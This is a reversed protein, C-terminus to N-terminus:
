LNILIIILILGLIPILWLVTIPRNEPVKQSMKARMVKQKRGTYQMWSSFYILVVLIGFLMWATTSSMLSMHMSSLFKALIVGAFLFLLSKVLTIYVLALGTAQKNKRNRYYAYVQLFLANFTGM